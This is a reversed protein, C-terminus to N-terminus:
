FMSNQNQAREPVDQLVDWHEVIKGNELRFIDMVATGRAGPVPVLHTHVAVLDDEAIFRKFEMRLAPNESTIWKVFGIFPDPGDGALPNHQRYYPGLYQQVAEEPQRQNFALDYFAKVTEKNQHATAM